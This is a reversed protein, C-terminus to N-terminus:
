ITLFSSQVNNVIGSFVSFHWFQQSSDIRGSCTPIHQNFQCQTNLFLVARKSFFALFWLHSSIGSWCLLSLATPSIPPSFNRPSGWLPAPFSCGAKPPRRLLAAGFGGSVIAQFGSFNDGKFALYFRLSPQHKTQWTATRPKTGAETRSELQKGVCGWLPM